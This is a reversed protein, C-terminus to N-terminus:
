TKASERDRYGGVNRTRSGAVPDLASKLPEADPEPLRLLARRLRVSRGRANREEGLM